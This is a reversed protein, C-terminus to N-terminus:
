IYKENFVESNKMPSKILSAFKENSVRLIQMPSWLSKMQPWLYKNFAGTKENSVGSVKQKLGWNANSVELNINLRLSTKTKDSIM